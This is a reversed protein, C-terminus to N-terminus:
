TPHNLPNKGPELFRNAQPSRSNLARHGHHPQHLPAVAGQLAAQIRALKCCQAAVEPPDLGSPWSQLSQPPLWALQPSPFLDLVPWGQGVGQSVGPLEAQLQPGAGGGAHPIPWLASSAMLFADRQTAGKCPLPRSALRRDGKILGGMWVRSRLGSHSTDGAIWCLECEWETKPVGHGGCWPPAQQGLRPERCCHGRGPLSTATRRIGAGAPTPSAM